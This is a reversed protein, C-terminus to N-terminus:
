PDHNGDPRLPQIGAAELRHSGQALQHPYADGLLVRGIAARARAGPQFGAVSYIGRMFEPTPIVQLNGRSPLTVLQKERVFMPRKKSTRRPKIWSRRPRLTNSPSKTWAAKVSRPAALKAMEDRVDKLAAEAESLVQEPTKGSVLTHAFKLDYKEKGLRWDSTRHSLDDKLYQSFSRLAELAPAPRM